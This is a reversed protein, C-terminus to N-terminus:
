QDDDGWQECAWEYVGSKCTPCFAFPILGILGEVGGEAELDFECRCISCETMTPLRRGPRITQPYCILCSCQKLGSTGSM